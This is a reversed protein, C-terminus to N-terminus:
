RGRFTSRYAGPSVGLGAQFHQRLSAGTGFGAETAIRDVTHDTQELLERARDVRRQTLWQIPTLGTEERFRRSYTRVSVADHAALEALTLPEALRTLAWARSASTSTLGASEVPRQIYQAQGGERHPPVVTRRAVEAAVAAGHDRRIMHLCLDIGAAEGASTLMRGEDVYLVGPDVTVSPFTRAFLDASMWHTTARRGDLLGAAALVFSGTCISAIRRPGRTPHQGSADEAGRVEEAGSPAAAADRLAEAGSPAAAERLAEALEEPLGGPRLGEDTEHSAPVLVTDAAAVAELGHEAYIPFDADTRIRGPRPACTRVDYLPEGAASRATGFLQHILGLEMPLVGDRVLVAVTRRGSHAPTAPRVPTM